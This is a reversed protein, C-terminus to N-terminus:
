SNTPWRHIFRARDWLEFGEYRGQQRQEEFLQKAREVADADSIDDPLIEVGVINGKRMFYCRM